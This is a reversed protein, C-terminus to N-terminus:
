MELDQGQKTAYQDGHCRDKDIVTSYIFEDDYTFYNLKASFMSFDYQEDRKTYLRCLQKISPDKELYKGFVRKIKRVDVESFESSLKYNMIVFNSEVSECTLSSFDRVKEPSEEKLKKLQLEFGACILEAATYKPKTDQKIKEVNADSFFAKVSKTGTKIFDFGTKFMFVTIGILIVVQAIMLGGVFLGAIVSGLGEFLKKM